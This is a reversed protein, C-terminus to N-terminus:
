HYLYVMGTAGSCNAYLAVTAMGEFWGAWWAAKLDDYVFPCADNHGYDNFGIEMAEEVGIYM